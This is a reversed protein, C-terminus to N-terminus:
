KGNRSRAAAREPTTRSKSWVTYCAVAVVSAAGAAAQVHPLETGREVLWSAVFSVLAIWSYAISRCWSSVAGLRWPTTIRQRFARWRVNFYIAAASAAAMLATMLWATDAWGVLSVLLATTIAPLALGSGGQRGAFQAAVVSAVGVLALAAGIIVSPLGFELKLRSLGLPVMVALGLNLSSSLAVGGVLSPNNRFEAVAGGRPLDADVPQPPLNGRSLLAGATFMAAYCGMIVRVGAAALLGGLLPGLISAGTRISEIAGYLRTVHTPDTRGAGSDVAAAVIAGPVGLALVMLVSMLLPSDTLYILVGGAAVILASLGLARRVVLFTEHRDVVGGLALGAIVLSTYLAGHVLTPASPSAGLSLLAIPLSISFAEDGFTVLGLLPALRKGRPLITQTTM